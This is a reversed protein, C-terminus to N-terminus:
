DNLEVFVEYKDEYILIKYFALPILIHYKGFPQKTIRIISAQLLPVIVLSKL